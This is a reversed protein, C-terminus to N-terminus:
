KKTGKTPAQATSDGGDVVLAAAGFFQPKSEAKLVLARDVGGLLEKEEKTYLAANVKGNIFVRATSRQLSGAINVPESVAYGVMETGAPAALLSTPSLIATTVVSNVAQDSAAWAEPTYPFILDDTTIEFIFPFGLGKVKYKKAAAPVGDEKGVALLFLTADDSEFAAGIASTDTVGYPFQQANTGDAGLLIAGRALLKGAPYKIEANVAAAEENEFKARQENIQRSRILQLQNEFAM